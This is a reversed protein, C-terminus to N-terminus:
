LNVFSTINVSKCLTRGPNDNVLRLLATVAHEEHVSESQLIVDDCTQINGLGDQGHYGSPSQIRGLLSQGAGRYM